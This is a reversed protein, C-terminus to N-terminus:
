TTRTRRVMTVSPRDPDVPEVVAFGVSAYLARAPNGKNVALSLAPFGQAASAEVLGLQLQRGIGEGRRSAVVAIALEPVDEAVFGHGRVDGDFARYWAAGLPEGGQEAQEDHGGPESRGPEGVVTQEAILGHDGPRPWGDLYMAYRPDALVEAGTPTRKDPRWVASEGLMTALFALDGVGAVRCRVGEM